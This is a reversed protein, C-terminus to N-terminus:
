KEAMMFNILKQFDEDSCDACQGMAPMGELGSLTSVLLGTEGRLSLRRQWEESHGTLPASAGDVSHCSVCSRNYIEALYANSPESFEAYEIQAQTAKLPEDPVIPAEISKESSCASILIIACAYTFIRRM